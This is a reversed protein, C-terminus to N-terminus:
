PVRRGQSDQLDLDQRRTFAGLERRDRGQLKRDPGVEIMNNFTAGYLGFSQEGGLGYLAPDYSAATNMTIAMVVHGGRKPMAAATNMFLTEAAAVTMGAAM